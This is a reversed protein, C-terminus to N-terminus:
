SLAGKKINSQTIPNINKIKLLQNNSITLNHRIAIKIGIAIAIAGGDGMQWQTNNIMIVLFVPAALLLCCVAFM